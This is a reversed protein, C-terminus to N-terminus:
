LGGGAASEGSALAIGIDRFRGLYPDHVELTGATGFIRGLRRPFGGNRGRSFGSQRHGEHVEAGAIEDRARAKGQAQDLRAGRAAEREDVGGDVEFCGEAQEEAYRGAQCLTRCRGGEAPSGIQAADIM